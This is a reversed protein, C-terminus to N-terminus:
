ECTFDTNNQDTDENFYRSFVPKYFEYAKELLRKETSSDINNKKGMIRLILVGYTILKEFESLKSEFIKRESISKKIKLHTRVRANLEISNVPKTIYDNAGADLGEKLDESRDRATVMIVPLDFSTFQDRLRRCVEYGNMGPMVIDLLVIDPIYGNDIKQLLQGGGSMSDVHYEPNKLQTEILHLNVPNDDVVAVLFEANTNEKSYVLIDKDIVKESM